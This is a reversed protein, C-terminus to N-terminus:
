KTVSGNDIELYIYEAPTLDFVRTNVCVTYTTNELQPNFAVWDIRDTNIKLGDKVDVLM